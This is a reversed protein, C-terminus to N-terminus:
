VFPPKIIEAANNKGRISISIENGINAYESKVYGIGIGKSLIPSFGGSTVVGIIDSNGANGPATGVISPAPMCIDYGQRPIGKEKLEFGVFKREPGRAKIEAIAGCGIFDGKDLKTIWGLGAELPNTDKTIDNGYLCMKKELRLTDRAGLGVPQIGFAQGKDIIANWVQESFSEDMYLEFGLEGTYGTRSIIMPKDALKANVTRYFKIPSLDEETLTQLLDRSNPGQVAILSTKGSVDEIEVNGNSHSKIWSFDKEINSSNVVLMYHDQFRYVLLDDVIGGDPYCMASYQAQGITLKAADNITVKQILDLAGSGSILFEGMHSVDFMGAKSRVCRHEDMISSYVLPMSFGAFAVMKGGMKVHTDYLATKKLTGPDTM